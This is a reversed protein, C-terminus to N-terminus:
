PEVVIGVWFNRGAAPIFYPEGGDVYGFSTFRRDLLNNIRAELAFQRAGLSRALPAPLELHASVDLLTFAPNELPVYGERQRREPYRRNDQSNDLYFRGVHRLTALARLGDMEFRASLSGLLDPFGAIRNGDFIEAEGEWGFQRYRRFTNRSLTLAGDLGFHPQIQWSGEVELGRHLSRAGNGYVPVGNDDLAGAWVIENAFVMHFTSARLRFTRRRLSLGAETDWLQEPDLAVRTGWYDQPDYITRFAPERAGRAVAAFVETGEGLSFMAGLRPLLFRYRETFAVGKIRDKSLDYRHSALQLGGSVTLRDSARWSALGAVAWSQKEVQYDYYRRDPPVPPYFAAWTVEGTHRARHQRFEARVTWTLPGRTARLTPVWGADWEDVSRRRVLDTRTVVTGDPLTVNPLNYEVLRRNAKYQEYYGDGQFLYFTQELRTTDSLDLAHVLQYHPQFFNDIEGPYTLPNFRRDRDADGTLGGELVSQPVGYYALHTQEPGGFLNLCWTSRTGFRALSLYYNWMEVWSQDRYGDTTIKSYRASLAWSDDLLGSNYVAVFRQTGYSGVGAALRFSPELAPTATTFDLAGGIGSLGFVGRQLQVDGATALFDALDIFFLEGSEADNLPAGNITVRTRSQSFGRISFYSYGIGNGNDNYAFFGPAVSALLMAPDQGWYAEQVRERPVNTFTAPDTGERARTATVEIRDAFTVEPVLAVTLPSVIPPTLTRRELRYGTRAVVLFVTGEEGIALAFEGGEDTATVALAGASVRAGAIPAGSVADVVRGRLETALSNVGHLLVFLALVLGRRM